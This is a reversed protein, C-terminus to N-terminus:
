GEAKDVLVVTFPSAGRPEVQFSLGWHGVMVLAPTSRAYTGPPGEALTYAQQQMDMDLMAFHAIVTAGTVPQGGRTIRVSFRSPAAARNPNIAVALTYPSQHVTTRAAGPGVHASVSGLSALAKAPPPLSSLAMAAAVVGTVLLVEGAVLRRLLAAASDGLGQDRGAAAAVLRPSSRANNLGGLVLAAALLAIKVLIAKGYSTDWLTALTPLHLIAAGTGSVIVVAVSAIALRSFRPVTRALVEVRGPGAAALLVLLGALGGLWLSGAIMHLWDLSWALAAPSTQAAHGALGPMALLAGAALLAGIQALLAAVSRPGTGRDIRMAVAAAVAFLAVILEMDTLARGLASSRILPVVQSMDTAPRLAFSATTLVMYVPIALLALGLCAALTVELARMARPAVAAVPRAIVTRMAFLGVALMVTLFATWRSAVLSPTAATESLSPIVFQPAPGPNPGVAFTFAGRVPHGDASIVRWYVLYWGPKLHRLPVLLTDPDGPSAAPSGAAQQTGNQDTVSVVAFRPEVAESYTLSVQRPSSNVTVSSQPDTRLLYAHAWADVAPSLVLLGTALLLAGVIRRRWSV